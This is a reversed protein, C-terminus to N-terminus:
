FEIRAIHLFQLKQFEVNALKSKVYFRLSLFIRYNGCQKDIEPRSSAYALKLSDAEANKASFAPRSELPGAEFNTKFNKM